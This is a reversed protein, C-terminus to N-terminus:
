VQQRGRIVNDQTVRTIVTSLGGQVSRSAGPRGAAIARDDMAVSLAAGALPDDFVSTCLAYLALIRAGPRGATSPLSSSINRLMSFALGAQPILPM